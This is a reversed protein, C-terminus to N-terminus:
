YAATINLWGPASHAYASIYTIDQHPMIQYTTGQYLIGSCTSSAPQGFSVRASVTPTLLLFRPHAGTRTNGSFQTAISISNVTAGISFAIPSQMDLIPQNGLRVAETLGYEKAM